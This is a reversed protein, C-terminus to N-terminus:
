KWYGGYVGNFRRKIVTPILEHNRGILLGIFKAGNYAISRPIWCYQKMELLYAIEGFAHRFGGNLSEQAYGKAGIEAHSVGFAFYRAFVPGLKADHSHTVQSGHVYRIAYGQAIVRSAWEQDESMLIDEAFPQRLLFERRIAASATSFSVGPWAPGGRALTHSVDGYMKTYFYKEMPPAEDRAIQRSFTAVISHDELLPEILSRLWRGNRPVADQNLLVLIDTQALRAALNRTRGHGFDAKPIVVLNAASQKAIRRTDDSSSSDIVILEDPQLDQAAIGRLVDPLTTEGNYALIVVSIGPESSEM